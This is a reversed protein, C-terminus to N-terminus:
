KSVKALDNNIEDTLVKKYYEVQDDQYFYSKAAEIALKLRKISLKPSFREESDKRIKSRNTNIINRNNCIHKIKNKFDAEVPEYVDKKVQVSDVFFNYKDMHIARNLPHDLLLLTLGIGVQEVSAQGSPAIIISVDFTSVKQYNEEFPYYKQDWLFWPENWLEGVLLNFKAIFEASSNPGEKPPPSKMIVVFNNIENAIEKFCKLVFNLNYFEIIRSSIGFVITKKDVHVSAKVMARAVESFYDVRARFLSGSSIGSYIKDALKPYAFPISVIKHIPVDNFLLTKIRLVDHTLIISSKNLYPYYTSNKELKYPIFRAITPVNSSIGLKALGLQYYPMTIFAVVLNYKEYYMQLMEDGFRSIANNSPSIDIEGSRASALNIKCLSNLKERQEPRPILDFIDILEVPLDNIKALEILKKAQTVEGQTGSAHGLIILRFEKPGGTSVKRKYSSPDVNVKRISVLPDNSLRNKAILNIKEILGDINLITIEWFLFTTRLYYTIGVSDMITKLMHEFEVKSLWKSHEVKYKWWDVYRQLGYAMTIALSDAKHKKTRKIAERIETTSCTNGIVLVGKNKEEEILEEWGLERIKESQDFKEYIDLFSVNTLYASIARRPNTIIKSTLKAFVNKHGEYSRRAEDLLWSLQLDECLRTRPNFGKIMLYSSAKIASAPGYMRIEKTSSIKNRMYEWALDFVKHMVWLNPYTIRYILPFEMTLEVADLVPNVTFSNFISTFFNKEIKVVDGDGGVIILNGPHKSYRKLLLAYETIYKRIYGIPMKKRFSKYIHYVKVHPYNIKFLQVKALTLDRKAGVPMNEFLVVAIKDFGTCGGYLELTKRIVKEELYIPIILVGKIQSDLKPSRSVLDLLEDRYKTFKPMMKDGTVFYEEILQNIDDGMSYITENDFVPAQDYLRSRSETYNFVGTSDNGYVPKFYTKSSNAELYYPDDIKVNPSVGLLKRILKPWLLKRLYQNDKKLSNIVQGISIKVIELEKLVRDKNDLIIKIIKLIEKIQTNFKISLNDNVLEVKFQDVNKREKIVLESDTNLQSILQLTKLYLKFFHDLSYGFNEGQKYLEKFSKSQCFDMIKNYFGLLLKNGAEQNSFIDVNKGQIKIINDTLNELKGINDNKSQRWLFGETEDFKVKSLKKHFAELYTMIKGINDILYSFAKYEQEREYLGKGTAKVFDRIEKKESHSLKPLEELQQIDNRIILRQSSDTAIPLIRLLNGMLKSAVSSQDALKSVQKIADKESKQLNEKTLM